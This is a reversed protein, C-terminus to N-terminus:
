GEVLDQRAPPVGCEKEVLAALQQRQVGTLGKGRIRVRGIVWTGDTGQEMETRVTCKIGLEGAQKEIYQSVAGGISSYAIQENKQKAEETQREAQAREAAFARSFSPLTLRSLPLLLALIMLMGTALRIVEHLASKQVILLMVTSFVAAATVSVIMQRVMEIM